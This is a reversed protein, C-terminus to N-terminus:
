YKDETIRKKLFAVREKQWAIEDEYRKISVTANDRNAQEKENLKLDGHRGRKTWEAERRGDLRVLDEKAFSVTKENIALENQLEVLRYADVQRDGVAFCVDVIDNIYKKSVTQPVHTQMVLTRQQGKDLHINVSIGIVPEPAPTIQAEPPFM